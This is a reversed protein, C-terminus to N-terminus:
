YLQHMKKVKKEGIELIKRFPKGFRPFSAFYNLVKGGFLVLIPVPLINGIIAILIVPIIDLGMVNYGVPIAGRLEVIPLMSIIFVTLYKLFM